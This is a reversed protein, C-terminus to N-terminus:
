RLARRTAALGLAALTAFGAALLLLGLRGAMRDVPMAALSLVLASFGAVIGLGGQRWTSEVPALLRWTIAGGALMGALTGLLLVAAEPSSVDPATADTPPAGEQLRRVLWLAVAIMSAGAMVGTALASLALSVPRLVSM